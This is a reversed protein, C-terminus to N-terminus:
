KKQMKATFAGKLSNAGDSVNIEGKVEDDTVETIKLEGDAKKGMSVISTDSVKGGTHIKVAAGDLKMFKDATTTYTGVKIPTKEDTGEENIFNLRVYIQGDATPVVGAKILDAPAIDFNTLYISHSTGKKSRIIGDGRPAETYTMVTTSVATSKPVLTSDKSDAKIDLQPAGGGCAAFFVSLLIITLLKKM